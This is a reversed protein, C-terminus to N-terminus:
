LKNVYLFNRSPPLRGPLTSRGSGTGDVGGSSRPFQKEAGPTPRFKENNELTIRSPSFVPRPAQLAPPPRELGINEPGSSQASKTFLKYSGSVFYSFDPVFDREIAPALAGKAVAM